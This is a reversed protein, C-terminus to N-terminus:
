EGKEPPPKWVELGVSAVSQSLKDSVPVSVQEQKAAIAAQLLAEQERIPADTKNKFLAGGGSLGLASYVAIMIQTIEKDFVVLVVIAAIGFLVILTIIVGITKDTNKGTISQIDM